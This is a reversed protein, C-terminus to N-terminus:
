VTVTATCVDAPVAARVLATGLRVLNVTSIVTATIRRRRKPLRRPMRSAPCKATGVYKKMKESALTM